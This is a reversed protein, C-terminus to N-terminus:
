LPAASIYGTNANNRVATKLPTHWSLSLLLRSRGILFVLDALLLIM